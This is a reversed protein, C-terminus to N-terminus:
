AVVEAQQGNIYNMFVEELNPEILNVSILPLNLEHIQSILTYLEDQSTIAGSLITENNEQRIALQGRLNEIHGNLNGKVRIEYFEKRFLGLLEQVPRNTVLQGKNIIAVRDCLAQAMDLQHTTLIITKSRQRALNNIWNKVTVAASVDLGLTPEDLLVVPPDAV